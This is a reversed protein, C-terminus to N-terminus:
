FIKKDFEISRNRDVGRPINGIAKGVELEGENLTKQIEERILKRFESAKM